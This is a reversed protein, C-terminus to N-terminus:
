NEVIEIGERWGGGEGERSEVNQDDLGGEWVCVCMGGGGGGGHVVVDKTARMGVLLLMMVKFQHFYYNMSDM